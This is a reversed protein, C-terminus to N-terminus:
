QVRKEIDWYEGSARNALGNLSESNKIADIEIEFITLALCGGYVMRKVTKFKARMILDILDILM